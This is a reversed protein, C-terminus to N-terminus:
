FTKRPAKTASANSAPARNALVGIADALFLWHESCVTQMQDPDLKVPVKECHGSDSVPQWLWMKLGVKLDPQFRALKFTVKPVKPTTGGATDNEVLPLAKSPFM